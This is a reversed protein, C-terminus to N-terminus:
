EALLQEVVLEMTLSRGHKGAAIYASPSLSEQLQEQIRTFVSWQPMWGKASIESAFVFSFLAAADDLYGENARVCAAITIVFYRFNPLFFTLVHKICEMAEKQESLGCHVLALGCYAILLKNKEGMARRRGDELLRKAEEYDEEIGAILGRVILPHSVWVDGFQSALNYAEDVLTTAHALDGLHLLYYWFGLSVLVGVRSHWEDLERYLNIAEQKYHAAESFRGFRNALITGLFGAAQAQLAHVGIERSLEYARQITEVSELHKQTATQWYGLEILTITLEYGMGQQQYLEFTETLLIVAQEAQDPNTSMSQALLRLAYAIERKDNRKRAVKLYAETQPAIDTYELTLLHYRIFIKKSLIEDIESFKEVVQLMLDCVERRRSGSLGFVTLAELSAALDALVEHEVAWLWATRLNEFDSEIENVAALQRHGKLDDERQCLAALYYHSHSQQTRTSEGILELQEQAYQRLLEHVEYCGSPMKRLMSKEVLGLLIPLSAGAVQEAAEREFGGHFVCMKQFVKQEAANCLNWSYDFVAQISRHREPIDCLSSRLIELGCRIEQAIEMSTLVRVWSAALEIALPMGGVLQCIEVIYAPDDSELSFGAHVQRATQIFLQVAEYGVLDDFSLEPGEPLPYQMGQVDFLWEEKLYLRERSTVLLTTRKTKSVVESLIPAGDRLHEFNDFVLLIKKERLYNMVQALPDQQETQPLKLADTLLPVIFAPSEISVLSIFYIGDPFISQQRRAVEIALRTKGIGGPGVLTLLRCDPDVLRDHIEVLEAERGIFAANQTPLNHRTEDLAGGLLGLARARAVAQTRNRVGLKQYAQKNYWKVTELTLFLQDAIEQNSLGEAILALIERERDTLPECNDQRAENM